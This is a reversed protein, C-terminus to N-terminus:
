FVLWGQGLGNSEGADEGTSLTILLYHLCRRYNTHGPLWFFIYKGLYVDMSGIDVSHRRHILGIGLSSIGLEPACLIWQVIHDTGTCRFSESYQSDVICLLVLDSWNHRVRQLGISWLGGPEETWLIRLALTSSHTVMEKGLPDEWGLLWIQTKQMTPLSKVVLAM